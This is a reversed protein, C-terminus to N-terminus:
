GFYLNKALCDPILRQIACRRCWLLFDKLDVLLVDCQRGTGKTPVYDRVVCELGACGFCDLPGCVALSIM